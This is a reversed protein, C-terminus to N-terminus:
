ERHETLQCKDYIITQRKGQLRFNISTCLPLPYPDNKLCHIHASLLWRDMWGNRWQELRNLAKLHSLLLPTPQISLHIHHAVGDSMVWDLQALHQTSHKESCVRHYWRMEGSLQAFPTHIHTLITYAPLSNSEKVEYGVFFSFSFNCPVNCVLEEEMYKCSYGVVTIIHDVM